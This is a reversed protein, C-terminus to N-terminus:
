SQKCCKQKVPGAKNNTLVDTQFLFDFFCFVSIVINQFITKIINFSTSFENVTIKDFFDYDYYYFENNSIIEKKVPKPKNELIKPNLPFRKALNKVIIEKIKDNQKLEIKIIDYNCQEKFTNFWNKNVLFLEMRENINSNLIIELKKKLNLIIIFVNIYIKIKM